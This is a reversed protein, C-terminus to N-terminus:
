NVETISSPTVCGLSCWSCMSCGKADSRKSTKFNYSFVTGPRILSPLIGGVVLFSCYVDNEYGEDEGTDRVKNGEEKDRKEDRERERERKRGERERTKNRGRRGGRLMSYSSVGKEMGKGEQEKRERGRGEGERERTKNRGRRGGRLMSYSSVRRGKRRGAREMGKGRGEGAFMIIVFTHRCACSSTRRNAYDEKTEEKKEEERKKKVSGEHACVFFAFQSSASKPLGSCLARGM